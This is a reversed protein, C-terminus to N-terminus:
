LTLTLAGRLDPYARGILGLVAGIRTAKVILRGPHPFVGTEIAVVTARMQDSGTDDLRWVASGSIGQLRDPPPGRDPEAAISEAHDYDLLLHEAPDSSFAKYDGDHQRTIYALASTPGGRRQLNVPYGALVCVDSVQPPDLRLDTVRLWRAGEFLGASRQDLELIGVDDRENGIAVGEVSFQHGAILNGAILQDRRGEVLVHSATVLWRKEAVELLSGTGLPRIFDHEVARTYLPICASRLLPELKSGFARITDHVDM